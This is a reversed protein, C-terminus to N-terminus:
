QYQNQYARLLIHHPPSRYHCINLNFKACSLKPDTQVKQEVKNTVNCYFILVTGTLQSVFQVYTVSGSFFINWHKQANHELRCPEAQWVFRMISWQRKCLSLSIPGTNRIEGASKSISSWEYIKWGVVFSLKILRYHIFPNAMEIERNM